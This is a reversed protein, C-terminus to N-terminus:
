PTVTGPPSSPTPAVNTNAYAGPTEMTSDNLPPNPTAIRPSPAPRTNDDSAPPNVPAPSAAGAPPRNFSIDFNKLVVRVNDRLLYKKNTQDFDCSQATAEMDAREILVTNQTRMRHDAVYLDAKPSTITTTVKGQDYLEIKLETAEARNLTVGKATIAAMMAKLEGKDYIPFQFDKFTQGYPIQPTAGGGGPAQAWAAGAVLAMVGMSLVLSRM